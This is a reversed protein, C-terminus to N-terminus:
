NTESFIKEYRKATLEKNILQKIPIAFIASNNKSGFILHTINFTRRLIEVYVNFRKNSYNNTEIVLNAALFGWTYIKTIVQMESIIELITAGIFGLFETQYADQIKFGASFKRFSVKANIQNQSLFGLDSVQQRVRQDFCHIQHLM